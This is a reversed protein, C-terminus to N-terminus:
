IMVDNFLHHRLSCAGPHPVPVKVPVAYPQKVPVKVPVADSLLVFLM